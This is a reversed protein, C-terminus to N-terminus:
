KGKYIMGDVSYKGSGLLFIACYGILFVFALENNDAGIIQFNKVKLAMFMTILLPITALRTFLGMILLFSCFFEAFIAMTLSMSSSLGMFEVFKGSMKDFSSVKMWGHNFMMSIGLGLRLLLPAIDM